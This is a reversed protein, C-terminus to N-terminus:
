GVVGRKGNRNVFFWFRTVIAPREFLDNSALPILMSRMSLKGM